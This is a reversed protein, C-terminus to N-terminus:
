RSTSHMTKDGKPTELLRADATTKLHRSLCSGKPATGFATQRKDTALQILQHMRANVTSKALSSRLRLVGEDNIDRLEPGRSEFLSPGLADQKREDGMKSM